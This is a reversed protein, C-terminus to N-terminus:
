YPMEMERFERTEAIMEIPRVAAEDTWKKPLAARLFEDTLFHVDAYASKIKSERSYNAPHLLDAELIKFLPNRSFLQEDCQAKEPFRPIQLVCPVDPHSRKGLTSSPPGNERALLFADSESQQAEQRRLSSLKAAAKNSRKNIM